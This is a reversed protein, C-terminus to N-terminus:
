ANGGRDQQGRSQGVCVRGQGLARVRGWVDGGQRVKEGRTGAGRDQGVYKRSHGWREAGGSRPSAAPFGASPLRPPPTPTCVEGQQQFVGGGDSGHMGERARDTLSTHARSGM